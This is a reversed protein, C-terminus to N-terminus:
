SPPTSGVRAAVERSIWVYKATHRGHLVYGQDSLMARARDSAAVREPDKDREEEGLLEIV